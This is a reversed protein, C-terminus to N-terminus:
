PDIDMFQNVLTREVIRIKVTEFKDKKGDECIRIKILIKTVTWNYKNKIGWMM